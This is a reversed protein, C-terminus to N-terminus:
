FRTSGWTVILGGVGDVRVEFDQASLWSYSDGRIYPAQYLQNWSELEKESFTVSRQREAAAQLM